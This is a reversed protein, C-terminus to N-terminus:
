QQAWFDVVLAKDLYPGLLKGFDKHAPDVLYADRDKASAFTLFFCHTYGQALNEPSVNTGWEFGRILNIKAPLARFADELQKSQQATTREKFKFLVVHRLLKQDSALQPNCGAALFTVAVLTAPIIRNLLQFPTLM